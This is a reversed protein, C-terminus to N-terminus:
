GGSARDRPGRAFVRLFLEEGPYAAKIMLFFQGNDRQSRARRKIVKIEHLLGELDGTLM